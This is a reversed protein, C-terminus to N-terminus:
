GYGEFVYEEREYGGRRLLWLFSVLLRLLPCTHGVEGEEVFVDEFGVPVGTEIEVDFGMKEEEV